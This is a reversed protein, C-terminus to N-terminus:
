SDPLFHIQRVHILFFHLEPIDCSVLQLPDPHIILNPLGICRDDERFLRSWLVYKRIRFADVVDAARRQQM